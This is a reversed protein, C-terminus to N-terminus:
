KDETARMIADAKNTIKALMVRYDPTDARITIGQPDDTVPRLVDGHGMKYAPGGKSFRVVGSKSVEHVTRRRVDTIDARDLAHRIFFFADGPNPNTM